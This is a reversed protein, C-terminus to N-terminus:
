CMGVIGRGVKNLIVNEYAGWEWLNSMNGLIELGGKGGREVVGVRM